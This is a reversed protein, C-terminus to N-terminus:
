SLLPANYLQLSTLFIIFFNLRIKVGALIRYSPQAHVGAPSLAIPLKCIQPTSLSNTSSTIHQEIKNIVITKANYDAMISLYEFISWILFYPFVPFTGKNVDLFSTNNNKLHTM